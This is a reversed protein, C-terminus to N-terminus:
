KAVSVTSQIDNRHQQQRMRSRQRGIGRQQQTSNTHNTKTVIIEPFLTSAASFVNGRRVFALNDATAHFFFITDTVHTLATPPRDNM